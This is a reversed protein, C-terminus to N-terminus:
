ESREVMEVLEILSLEALSGLVLDAHDFNLQSTLPNPIAVAFIKVAKAATVGNPSDELVIANEPLLTLSQLALQYLSPHPKTHEVDDSTHVIDFYDLLGLRTLHGQVWNRDSSSAVGLKLNLAKATRLYDEVGPLIPQEVVLAMERDYRDEGLQKRDVSRGIQQELVDFPNFHEYGSTGIISTWQDLPLKAQHSDFIEVWSQYISWETDVILGDFDFIVGRIM